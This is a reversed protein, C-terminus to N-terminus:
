SVTWQLHRDRVRDRLLVLRGTLLAMGQKGTDLWATEGAISGRARMKFKEGSLGPRM